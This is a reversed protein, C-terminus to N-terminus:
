LRVRSPIIHWLSGLSSTSLSLCTACVSVLLYPNVHLASCFTEGTEHNGRRARQRRQIKLEPSSFITSVTFPACACISRPYFESQSPRRYFDESSLIKGYAYMQM